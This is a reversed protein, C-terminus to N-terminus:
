RRLNKPVAKQQGQVGGLDQWHQPLDRHYFDVLREVLVRNSPPAQANKFSFYRTNHARNLLATNQNYKDELFKQYLADPDFWFRPILDLDNEDLESRFSGSVMIAFPYVMTLSGVVLVAIVSGHILRGRLSKAEVHGLVPM